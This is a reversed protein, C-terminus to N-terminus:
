GIKFNRTVQKPQDKKKVRFMESYARGKSGAAMFTDFKDKTVGEHMATAGTAFIVEMQGTEESYGVGSIATSTIEHYKM